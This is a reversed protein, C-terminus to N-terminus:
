GTLIGVKVRHLRNLHLLSVRGCPLHSYGVRLATPEDPLSAQALELSEPSDRDPEDEKLGGRDPELAIPGERIPNAEVPVGPDAELPSLLHEEDRGVGLEVPFVKRAFVLSVGLKEGYGIVVIDEVVDKGIRM